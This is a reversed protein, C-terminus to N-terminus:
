NYTWLTSMIFVVIMVAWIAKVHMHLSQIGYEAKVLRNDVAAIGAKLDERTKAIDAKLDERTRTIDERTRAIDAKLEGYHKAVTAEIRSSMSGM